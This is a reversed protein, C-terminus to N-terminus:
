KELEKIKVGLPVYETDRVGIIGYVTEGAPIDKNIINYKLLEEYMKKNAGGALLMNGLTIGPGIALGIPYNEISNDTTVQLNIFSLLLYPLYGPVIQRLTNKTALPEMLILKNDGALFELDKGVKLTRSTQNTIKLAILRVGKKDEKRAYKKNGRSQLVDYKYSLDIGGTSERASYDLGPPFIPEYTAACSSLIFALIVVYIQIFIKNM